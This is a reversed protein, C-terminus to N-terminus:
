RNTASATVARNPEPPSEEGTARWHMEILPEADPRLTTESGDPWRVSIETTAPELGARGFYVVPPQQSLYGGGCSLEAVRRHHQADRLTVRAGAALPNGPPGLLRVAVMRPVAGDQRQQDRPQAIRLPGDNIGVLFSPEPNTGSHSPIALVSKADQPVVLGSTRPPVPLFTGDGRGWLLQSLGGDMNGTEPQPAFFNQVLYADVNGDGNYDGTTIGFAPAAQAIRPLARFQFHANGDNLWVGSELTNAAFRQSEDLREATYIQQLTAAAFDHYTPFKGALHPMAETSCSKGRVPFLTENEFEAEILQKKGTNDFDGYYLLTPHEASAHYKTNLGFNTTLYDLDGDNDFDAAAIGNWWGSRSALGALASQDSLRGGANRFWKVNGWECTLWLDLWGDNDADSWLASTVLGADALGGAFESTKEVLRGGENVLLYSRSPRPYDGPAVRGGVFLDVDGDRDFDAAAVPGGAERTDPWQSTGARALNGAGDNLYLRDRLATNGAPIEYGGSVVYLDLDGDGELDFWVAGMDESAKDEEFAQPSVTRWGAIGDNMALRAAQGAAGGLFLDDDGDGDIDAAALGPGLQSPKYPLLPQQRYDDSSNERHTWEAPGSNMVYMTAPASPPTRAPPPASPEAVTFEHDAPLNTFEQLHGSPWHIVMRAITADHGLGFHVMPENSAQFGRSPQLYQVQTGSSTQITVRAGIGFRNSSSGVLRVTMRGDRNLDNRYISLPEDLNAVLLDLDGDGDLDAHAAAMSVGLHNLQWAPGVKEFQLDGLNRFVLNEEKLPPANEHMDWATKGVLDKFQFLHDSDTFIRASGNSVFLDLRGDNDLDLLKVSWTWDTNALGALYAVEMMRETGTNLLLANRMYQRPVATELFERSNGMAGMTTKQKFHTTSAMDASLLDFLGDGNVDGADSGMSFWTVHPVAERVVDTFTGDGNNRYLHDPDRFDNGVYLDPWDNGDYDWWTASLGHEFGHIGAAETVNSFTGDGNNRLLGDSRGVPEYGIEDNTVAYYKRFHPDIERQGNVEVLPPKRPRGLPNEFRYTLLYIDLDGDLDFDAFAANLSADTLNLGYRWAQEAFKGNGQNVYLLNPADYNCVYIDLRGDNNIDIMTAGCGWVDQGGISGDVGATATIEEFRLNGVQRYLKNPVPGGVLYLDPLGDQDIDGVAMGGSAMGSFYLYRQPHSKDIPHIFDIGSEAPSISTFRPSEAVFPEALRRATLEAVPRPLAALQPRRWVRWGNILVVATLLSLALYLKTRSGTATASQSITKRM